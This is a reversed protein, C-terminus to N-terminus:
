GLHQERRPQGEARAGRERDRACGRVDGVDRVRDRGVARPQHADLRRHDVEAPHHPRRGGPEESRRVARTAMPRLTM